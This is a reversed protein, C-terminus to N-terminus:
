ACSFRTLDTSYRSSDFDLWYLKRRTGSPIFAFPRATMFTSVSSYPRAPSRKWGAQKRSQRGDGCAWIEVRVCERKASRFFMRGRKKKTRGGRSGIKRTNGREKRRGRRRASNKGALTNGVGAARKAQAYKERKRVGELICLCGRAHTRKPRCLRCNGSM